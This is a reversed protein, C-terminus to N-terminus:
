GDRRGTFLVTGSHRGGRFHEVLDLASMRDLSSQFDGARAGREVAGRVRAVLDGTVVPRTVVDTAAVEAWGGAPSWGGPDALAVFPVPALADEALVQRRLTALGEGLSASCVVVDVRQSRLKGLAEEAGSAPTVTFGHRSLGAGTVRLSRPESDVLLLQFRAM